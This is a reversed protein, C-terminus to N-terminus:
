NQRKEIRNRILSIEKDAGLRNELMRMTEEM